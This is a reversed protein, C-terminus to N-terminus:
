GTSNIKEDVSQTMPQCMWVWPEWMMRYAVAVGILFVPHM